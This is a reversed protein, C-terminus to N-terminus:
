YTSYRQLLMQNTEMSKITQIMNALSIKAEQQDMPLGQKLSYIANTACYKYFMNQGPDTAIKKLKEASTLQVDVPQQSVLGRYDDYFEFVSYMSVSSLHDEFYSLHTADGTEALVTGIPSTLLGSAEEKLLIAQEVAADSDLQSLTKLASGIVNYAQEKKFVSEITTALEPVNMRKLKSIAAARVVSHPDETVLRKIKEVLDPRNQTRVKEVAM